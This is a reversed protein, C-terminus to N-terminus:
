RGKGHYSELDRKWSADSRRGGQRLFQVTEGVTSYALGSGKADSVYNAADNADLGVKAAEAVADMNAGLFLFEWGAEKCQAILKRVRDLTYERSANEMGDTIVVVITREPRFAPVLRRQNERVRCLTRGLADLLATCGEPEYDRGTLPRVGKVPCRDHIVQIEDSFLVTTLVAEGEMAQQKELFGNFGGLTEKELGSMSGSKDLICVLEAFDKM